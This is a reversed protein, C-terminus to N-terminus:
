LELERSGLACRSDYELKGGCAPCTKPEPM